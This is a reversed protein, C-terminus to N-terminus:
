RRRERARDWRGKAASDPWRSAMRKRDILMHLERLDGVWVVEELWLSWLLWLLWGM